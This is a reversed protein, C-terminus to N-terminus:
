DTTLTSQSICEYKYVCMYVYIYLLVAIYSFKHSLHKESDYIEPFQFSQARCKELCNKGTPERARKQVTAGKVIARTKAPFMSTSTRYMPLYSYTNQQHYMESIPSGAIVFSSKLATNSSPLDKNFVM